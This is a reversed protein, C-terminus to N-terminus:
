KLSRFLIGFAHIFRAALKKGFCHSFIQLFMRWIFYGSCQIFGNVGDACIIVSENPLCGMM